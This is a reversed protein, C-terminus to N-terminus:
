VTAKATADSDTPSATAPAPHAETVLEPWILAWDDPRLDRRTVVAGSLREVLVCSAPALLKLGYSCNKMHGLSTGCAVAFLERAEDTPLSKLFERLNM